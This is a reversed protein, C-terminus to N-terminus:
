YVSQETTDAFELSIPKIKKKKIYGKKILHKKYSLM